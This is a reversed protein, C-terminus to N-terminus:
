ARRTLKRFLWVIAVILLIDMILGSFPFGSSYGGGGYYSHGGGFPHFMSGLLGGVAMGGLFSGAGGFRSQTPPTYTSAPQQPKLYNYQSSGPNTVQSSPRQSGSRYVNTTQPITPSIRSPTRSYKGLTSAAMTPTAMFIVLMSVLLANLMKKIMKEAEL